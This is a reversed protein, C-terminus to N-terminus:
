EVVPKLTGDLMWKVTYIRWDAALGGMLEGYPWGIVRVGDCIFFQANKELFEIIPLYKNTAWALKEIIAKQKEIDFTKSLEITLDTLNMDEGNSGKVVKDLRSCKEIWEGPRYLRKFGELPHRKAFVSFEISMDYKGSTLTEGLDEEPVIRVNSVIGFDTLERAIEKAAIVWDTYGERAIVELEIREGKDNCWFGDANKKLGASKLLLTAKDYDLNYPNLIETNVWKDIVSPLVGCIYETTAGYYLALERVKDRDIIYALAQRFKVDSFPYKEQNMVVCFSAFDPASIHKIKPQAKLISDVVERPTVPKEIDLEGAMFQRWAFVNTIFKGISVKDFELNEIGPYKEVKELLMEDATVRTLRFPGVGIPKEPRFSRLDKQFEVYKEDIAKKLEESKEKKYQKRLNILEEAPGMWKAFIHEAVRQWETLIYNTVLISRNENYKFVVTNDDPTEISDLSDWIHSWTWIGGCIIYNARVDKSTFTVGDDWYLGEKLKVVLTNDKEEFSEALYSVFDATIPRYIALKGYIYDTAAGVGGPTFPNGNYAPPMYWSGLTKFVKKESAISIEGWSFVFFSVILISVLIKKM